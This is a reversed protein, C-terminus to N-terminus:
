PTKDEPTPTSTINKVAKKVKDVQDERVRFSLVITHAKKPRGSNPRSGGRTPKPINKAM